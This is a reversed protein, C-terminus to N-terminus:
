LRRSLLLLASSGHRGIKGVDGVLLSLLFCLAPLSGAYEAETSEEQSGTDSKMARNSKKRDLVSTTLNELDV